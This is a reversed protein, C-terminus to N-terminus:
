FSIQQMEFCVSSIKKQYLKIAELKKCNSEKTILLISGRHCLVHCGDTWCTTSQGAYRQFSFFGQLITIITIFFAMKYM